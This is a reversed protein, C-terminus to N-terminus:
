CGAAGLPSEQLVALGHQRHGRDHGGRFDRRLSEKVNPNEQELRDRADEGPPTPLDAAMIRGYGPQWRQFTLIDM